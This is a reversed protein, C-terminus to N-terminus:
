VSGKASQINERQKLSIVEFWFQCKDLNFTKNKYVYMYLQLVSIRQLKKM